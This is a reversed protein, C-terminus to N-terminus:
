FISQSTPCRAAFTCSARTANSKTANIHTQNLSVEPTRVCPEMFSVQVPSSHLPFTLFNFLAIALFTAPVIFAKSHVRWQVLGKLKTCTWKAYVWLFKKFVDWLPQEVYTIADPLSETAVTWSDSLAGVVPFGCILQTFAFCIVTM